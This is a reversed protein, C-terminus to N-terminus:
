HDIIDQRLLFCLKTLRTNIYILVRSRNNDQTPIRTLQLWALYNPVGFISQRTKSELSPIHQILTWSPEQIFIINYKNTYIELITDM